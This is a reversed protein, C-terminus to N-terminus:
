AARDRELAVGVVKPIRVRPGIRFQISRLNRYYEGDIVPELLEDGVADIKMSRCPRDLLTRGVMEKGQVMRPLNMAITMPSPTGVLANMLGQKDAKGFFRLVNGLNISMSAVHIGTFQDGPLIMGDVTVKARTPAFVDRAYDGIAGIGPLHRLPSLAVPMSVITSAIVKVITRPNPDHEDYYKSFFRQGVGGAAVAFGYTRFPVDGDDTVQVGEILMSDVETEEVRQGREIRRRLTALLSEADGSIGVNNAVFDITGGKTPMTLPLTVSGDSFEEEQLVEMGMRLMWHLAGDGGDAVWYRARKRLFERLVPKISDVSDTSHVEGLDGVISQLRQARDPRNKNKRSNPNTIVGIQVAPPMSQLFCARRRAACSHPIDHTRLYNRHSLAFGDERDRRRDTVQTERPRQAMSGRM